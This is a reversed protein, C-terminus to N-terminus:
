PFAATWDYTRNHKENHCRHPNQCRRGVDQLAVWAAEGKHNANHKGVNAALQNNGLHTVGAAFQEAPQQHGHCGNNRSSEQQGTRQM